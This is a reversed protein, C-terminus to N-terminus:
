DLDRLAFLKLPDKVHLHIVGVRNKRLLVKLM